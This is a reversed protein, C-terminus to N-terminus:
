LTFNQSGHVTQAAIQNMVKTGSANMWVNHSDNDPKTTTESESETTESNSRGNQKPRAVVRADDAMTLPQQRIPRFNAVVESSQRRASLQKIAAQLEGMTTMTNFSHYTHLLQLGEMTERLLSEVKRKKSPMSNGIAMTYRRIWSANRDLDISAFIDSLMAANIKCLNMVPEVARSEDEIRLKERTDNSGRHAKVAQEQVLKAQYLTSLIIAVNDSVKRFNEHLGKANKAAEYVEKFTEVITIVSSIAGLIAIPEVGSM